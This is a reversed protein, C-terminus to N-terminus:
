LSCPCLDQNLNTLPAAFLIDKMYYQNVINLIQQDIVRSYPM